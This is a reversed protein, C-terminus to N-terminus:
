GIAAKVLAAYQAAGDPRLHTGDDYFYEPHGDSATFWDVLVANPHAAAAEPDLPPALDMRSLPIGDRAIPHLKHGELEMFIDDQWGAHLLRWRQVEGPRMTITPERTKRPM